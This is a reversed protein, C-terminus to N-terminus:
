DISDFRVWSEDLRSALAGQRRNYDITLEQSLPEIGNLALVFSVQVEALAARAPPKLGKAAAKYLVKGAEAGDKICARWKDNITPLLPKPEGMTAFAMALEVVQFKEHCAPVTEATLKRFAEVQSSDAAAAPPHASVILGLVFGAAFVKM